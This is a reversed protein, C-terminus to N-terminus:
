CNHPKMHIVLGTPEVRTELEDGIGAEKTDLSGFM